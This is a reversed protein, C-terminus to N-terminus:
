FGHLLQQQLQSQLHSAVVIFGAAFPLALPHPQCLYSAFVGTAAGIGSGVLADDRQAGGALGDLLCCFQGPAAEALDFADPCHM